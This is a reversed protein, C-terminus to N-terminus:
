NYPPRPPRKTKPGCSVLRKCVIKIESVNGKIMFRVEKVTGFKGEFHIKDGKRPLPLHKPFDFLGPVDAFQITIFTKKTNFM